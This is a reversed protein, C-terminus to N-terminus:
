NRDQTPRFHPAMAPNHAVVGAHALIDGVINSLIITAWERVSVAFDAYCILKLRM